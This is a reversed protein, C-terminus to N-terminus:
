LYWAYKVILCIPYEKGELYVLDKGLERCKDYCNRNDITLLVNKFTEPLIFNIILSSQWRYIRLYKSELAIIPAGYDLRSTLRVKIKTTYLLNILPINLLISHIINRKPVIGYIKGNCCIYGM